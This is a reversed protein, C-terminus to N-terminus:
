VITSKGVCKDVAKRIPVFCSVHRSEAMDVPIACDGVGMEHVDFGM